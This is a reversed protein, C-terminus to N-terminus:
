TESTITDAARQLKRAIWPSIMGVAVLMNFGFVVSLSYLLTRVRPRVQRRMLLQSLALCGQIFLLTGVLFVFGSATRQLWDPGVMTALSLIFFAFVTWRPLRLKRLQTGSLPHVEPFWGLHAVLGISLWFSILAVAIYLFPGQYLLLSEVQGWNRIETGQISAQVQGVAGHVLQHWYPLLSVNEGIAQASLMGLGSVLALAGVAALFSWLKKERAVGDGVFIGFVFALVVFNLPIELFTLAVVAGVLASM